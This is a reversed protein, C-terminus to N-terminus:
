TRPRSRPQLALRVIRHILETYGIGAWSAMTGFGGPSLDPNPNGEIFFVRGEPTLRVDIKGYGRMDLLRFIPVAVSAVRRLEAPSLSAKPYTINWARRYAPDNKVRSTVFAPGGNGASAFCVERPPLVIPRRNGLVPIKLERGAIFEECIVAEGTRRHLFAAREAALRASAALSGRVMEESADRMLPKVLVPYRLRASLRREGVALVEFRPVDFGARRLRRKSKAKDRCLALGAPGAGTYPLGLRELVTAIRADKRRDGGLHETLNFVLDADAQKLSRVAAAPQADLALVAVEHGLRRLAAAVHWEVPAAGPRKARTLHPDFPDVAEFDILVLVKM